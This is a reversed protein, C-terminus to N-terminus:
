HCIYWEAVTHPLGYEKLVGKRVSTRVHNHNLLLTPNLMKTWYTKTFKVCTGNRVISPSVWARGLLLSLMVARPLELLPKTQKKTPAVQSKSVVLIFEVNGDEYESGTYVVAVHPRESADSFWLSDFKFYCHPVAIGNLCNLESIMKKWRLLLGGSLPSDWDM